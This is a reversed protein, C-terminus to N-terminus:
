NRFIVAPRQFRDWRSIFDDYDMFRMGEDPDMLYLGIPLKSSGEYGIVVVVHQDQLARVVEGKPTKWFIIDANQLASVWILVPKNQNIQETIDEVSGNILWDAKKWQSALAAVPKWYIGYGSEISRGDIDGVFGINPDGWMKEKKPTKDFPMKSIIEKESTNMGFFNLASTLAAAECSLSRKQKELPVDLKIGGLPTCFSPNNVSLFNCQTESAYLSSSLFCVLFYIFRM